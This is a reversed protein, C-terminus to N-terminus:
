RLLSLYITRWEWTFLSMNQMFDHLKRFEKLKQIGTELMKRESKTLSSMPITTDRIVNSLFRAEKFPKTLLVM